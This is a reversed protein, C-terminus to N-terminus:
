TDHATKPRADSHAAALGGDHGNGNNIAAKSKLIM